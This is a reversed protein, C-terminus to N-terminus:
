ISYIVTVSYWNQNNSISMNTQIEFKQSNLKELFNNVMLDLMARDSDGFTKIKHIM